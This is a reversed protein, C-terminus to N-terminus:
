LLGARVFHKKILMPNLSVNKLGTVIRESAHGDGYPNVLGALAQRFPPSIALRMADVIAGEETPIDLVNQAHIRGKQRNGINVVPLGFSAAEIIGSSSNGVMVSAWKMLSFYGELGLNKVLYANEHKAVFHHIADMVIRGHTDANPATFIVQMGVQGLAALLTQIHHKTDEHELTVPHFTVLATPVSLDIGFRAHFDKVTFLELTNLNDLAPAGSVTVRWAEEGMQRLNQAYQETSAFHLHSMKTIAHRIAEDILGETAEGGHIHAIPITFPVAAVVAAFMEFRDGLVLLIDPRQQTFANAFGMVGLGTSHAIGQPTDSALLHEIRAVIPFGDAEIHQVTYGFERVLHMGGVYLMLSLDKDAHIRRLAPTYISYDARSTTVVGITRM